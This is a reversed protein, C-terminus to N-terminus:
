SQQVVAFHEEGHDGVFVPHCAPVGQGKKQVLQKRLGRGFWGRGHLALISSGALRWGPGPWLDWARRGACVRRM